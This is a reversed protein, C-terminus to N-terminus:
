HATRKASAANVHFQRFGVGYYNVLPNQGPRGTKRGEVRATHTTKEGGQPIHQYAGDRHSNASRLDAVDLFIVYAGTRAPCGGDRHSHASKLDVVDIMLVIVSARTTVPVGVMRTLTPVALIQLM